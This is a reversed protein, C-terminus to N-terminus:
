TDGKEFSRPSTETLYFAKVYKRQSPLVLIALAARLFLNLGGGM